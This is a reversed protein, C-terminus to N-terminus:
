GEDDEDDMDEEEQEITAMDKMKAAHLEKTECAAYRAAAAVHALLHLVEGEEYAGLLAHQVDGLRIGIALIAEVNTLLDHTKSFKLQIESVRKDFRTQRSVIDLEADQVSKSCGCTATALSTTAVYSPFVLPEGCVDCKGYEIM